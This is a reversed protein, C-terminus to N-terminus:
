QERLREAVPQKMAKQYIVLPIACSLALLAPICAVIPFITFHNEYFWAGGGSKLLTVNVVASATLACLSVLAAYMGGEWALLAKQQKGTMGVAEMMAFEKRRSLIGTVMSNTFNLIGILGLLFSLSGGVAWYMEIYDGFEKEYSKRSVYQLTPAEEGTYSELSQEMRGEQGEGAMLVQFLAGPEKAHSLYEQEPLVAMTGLYYQFRSTMAFPIDGIAMVQYDKATGDPLRMPFTDGVDYYMGMLPEAGGIGLGITNLIIYDGTQFKEWDINGKEVQIQRLGWADMGYLQCGLIGEELFYQLIGDEPSEELYATEERIAGLVREQSAADFQLYSDDSYICHSEAVGELRELSKQMEETVGSTDPQFSRQLISADAVMADGMLSTSVYQGMDFGHILAYVSNLLVLSLSLSMAAVMVKRPSRRLNAWAFSLATVKHKRRKGAKGKEPVDLYRAAEIPSVKSALRCPRRSSIWVTLFSFCSAWLFIVPHLSVEVGVADMLNGAVAPLLCKGLFAGLLLGAPIGVASLLLAQCRVLRKLQRGTTGITKLLGFSRIDGAVHLVFINYIILYGSFMILCLLGSAMCMTGFDVSGIGYASNVSAAVQNSGYGNRALLSRLKGELDWTDAFDFDVMWYGAYATGETEYFSVEPTPAMERCYEESVWCQQASAVRDGEWYGSLIFKEQVKKGDIDITLPVAEGIRCPVGLAQLVLTSTAAEQRGTPLRGVTPECFMSAAEGEAAYSVETHLKELGDGEARGLIVRYRACTVAPDQSLKKYDGEQVFKVGAMSNSGIKRMAADQYIGFLSGGITFLATFLVTTLLIALVGPVYKGKGERVMRLSIRRIVKKNRVKQM